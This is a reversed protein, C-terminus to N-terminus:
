SIEGSGTITGTLTVTGTVEGQAAQLAAVAATLNQLQSNMGKLLKVVELTFPTGSLDDEIVEDLKLFQRLREDIAKMQIRDAAEFMDNEEIPHRIENWDTDKGDVVLHGLQRLHAAPHPSKNRGNSWATSMGAQWFVDMIDEDWCWQLVDWPGYVGPRFGGSRVAIAFAHAYDRGYGVWETRTIDFDCSGIIIGRDPHGLAKAQRVAETGHLTGKSGGGLWDRDINEWNLYVHLGNARLERYETSRIIKWASVDKWALYRCIGTVNEAKLKVPDIRSTYDLVLGAFPMNIVVLKMELYQHLWGMIM